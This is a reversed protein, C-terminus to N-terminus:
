KMLIMKRVSVYEGAELKYLYIGSALRSADWEFSYSGASLRDSVLTAVEEGIVSFIKLTVESTKLLEFEITTIPNFPNPYNQRLVFGKPIGAPSASLGTVVDATALGIEGVTLGYDYYIFYTSDKRTVAPIELVAGPIGAVYPDDQKRFVPNGTYKHWHIGDSSSAYGLEEITGNGGTYFMEYGQATPLVSCEWAHLLDWSGAAGVKLVPDSAGPTGSSDYKTWDIGNTSTAMGIQWTGNPFNMNGASYYMIYGTDIRLVTNPVMFGDDWEGSVGVSLVPNELRTWPGEPNDATARCITNGPGSIPASQASYYMIWLSNDILIRADSVAHADFGSGDALFIPNSVSKTFTFGDASTALGIAAPQSFINQSGTYFLYFVQNHYLIFPNFSVGSDWTGPNGKHLVANGLYATLPWNPQAFCITSILSLLLLMVVFSILTFIKM